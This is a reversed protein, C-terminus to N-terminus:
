KLDGDMKLNLDKVAQQASAIQKDIKSTSGGVNIDTM